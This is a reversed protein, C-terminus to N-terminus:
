KAGSDQGCEPHPSNASMANSRSSGPRYLSTAESAVTERVM